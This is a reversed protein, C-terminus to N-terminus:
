CFFLIVLKIWYERSYRIPLNSVNFKVKEDNGMRLYFQDLIDEPKKFTRIQHFVDEFSLNSVPHGKWGYEKSAILSFHYM